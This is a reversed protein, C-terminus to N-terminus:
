YLRITAYRVRHCSGKEASLGHWLYLTPQGLSVPAKVPLRPKAACTNPVDSSPGHLKHRIYRFSLSLKGPNSYINVPSTAKSFSDAHTASYRAVRAGSPRLCDSVVRLMRPGYKRTAFPRGQEPPRKARPRERHL